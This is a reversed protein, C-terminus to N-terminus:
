VVATIATCGCVVCLGTLIGHDDRAAYLHAGCRDCACRVERGHAGPPVPLRGRRKFRGSPPATPETAAASNDGATGPAPMEDDERTISPTSYERMM